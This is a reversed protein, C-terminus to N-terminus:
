EQPASSSLMFMLLAPVIYYWYKQLFSKEVEPELVQNNVLAVPKKFEPIPGKTVTKVVEVRSDSVKSPERFYDIHTISSLSEDDSYVVFHEQSSALFDGYCFCQFHGNEKVGLCAKGTYFPADKYPEYVASGPELTLFGYKQVQSSAEPQIYLPVVSTARVVCCLFASFFLVHVFM